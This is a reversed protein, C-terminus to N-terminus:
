KYAVLMAVGILVLVIGTIRALWIGGPLLKEILIYIAMGAMWLLNNIGAAFMLAMLLWCCGVCYAGHTLGMSFAGGFGERWHSLLFGVPTRCYKLCAYKFPTWQYAGALLFVIAGFLFTRSDSSFMSTQALGWQVITALFAFAVWTHLYGLIFTVTQVISSRNDRGRELRSFILIMPAASPLMMAVMMVGWMLLMLGWYRLGWPATDLDADVAMGPNIYTQVLYVWALLSILGVGAMIWPWDQTIARPM